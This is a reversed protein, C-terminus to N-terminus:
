LDVLCLLAVRSNSILKPVSTVKSQFITSLAENDDDDIDMYLNSGSDLIGGGIDSPM